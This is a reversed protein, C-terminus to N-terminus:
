LDTRRRRLKGSTALAEDKLSTLGEILERSPGYGMIKLIQNRAAVEVIVAVSRGPSVPVKLYPVDVGLVDCTKEDFGLREYDGKPDWSVLEVVLDLQKKERIATIGFLDKINVIGVGRVELHYPIRTSAMGFLTAPYIRKIVVADDAILRYGRSLLELACESKGIGSKGKILIGIGLVDVLVGHLMVSPALRVELYNMLAEIFVSSTHSTGLIPIGREECHRVIAPPPDLGRTVAIAPISEEFLDLTASLEAGDLNNIFGIEAAGLVQIRDQYLGEMLGTLLLGPKQIQATSVERGTGDEVVLCKLALLKEDLIDAITVAM